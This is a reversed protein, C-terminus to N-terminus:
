KKEDKDAYFLAVLLITTWIIGIFAKPGTDASWLELVLAGFILGLIYILIAISSKSM